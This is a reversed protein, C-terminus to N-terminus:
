KEGQTQDKTFLTVGQNECSKRKSDEQDKGTPKSKSCSKPSSSSCIKKYQELLGQNGLGKGPDDKSGVWGLGCKIPARYEKESLLFIGMIQPNHLLGL